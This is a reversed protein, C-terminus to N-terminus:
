VGKIANECQWRSGCQGFHGTFCAGRADMFGEEYRGHGGDAGGAEEEEAVVLTDHGADDDALEPEGCHAVRGREHDAGDAGEVVTPAKMPATHAARM